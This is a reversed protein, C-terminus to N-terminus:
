GGREGGVLGGLEALMAAADPRDAIRVPGPWPWRGAVERSIAIVTTEPPAGTLGAAALAASRASFLPLVAPGGELAGRAAATLAVAEQEYLVLGSAAVGARRLEGVLDGRVHAGRCHIYPGGREALLAARLAAVDGSVSRARAGLDRAARATRDGVAWAKRGALLGRAAAARVGHESTFVLTGGPLAGGPRFAIRLVPSFLIAGRWGAARAARAFREAALAPRTLVLVPPTQPRIM